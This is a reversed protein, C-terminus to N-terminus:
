QPTATGTYRVTCAAGGATRDFTETITGTNGNAAFLLALRYTQGPPAYGGTGNVTGATDSTRTSAATYNLTASPHIHVVIGTGSSADVTVTLTTNATPAFGGCGDQQLTITGRWTRNLFSFSSAPATGGGSGGTGGTGGSGGTNAPSSSSSGDNAMAIGVGAGVAGLGILVNRASLLGGGPVTLAFTSVNIVIRRSKHWWFAGVPRDDCEDDKPTGGGTFLLVETRGDKCVKVYVEVRVKGLNLDNFVSSGGGSSTVPVDGIKGGNLAVAISAGAPAGAIEIRINTPDQAAHLLTPVAGLALALAAAIAPRSRVGTCAM